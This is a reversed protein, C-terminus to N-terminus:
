VVLEGQRNSCLKLIGSVGGMGGVQHGEDALHMGARHM